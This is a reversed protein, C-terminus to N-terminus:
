KAPVSLVQFAAWTQVGADKGERSRLFDVQAVQLAEEPAKGAALERHLRDLLRIADNDVVDWATAVVAPVGRALFAAALGTVEASDRYSALGTSCAGLIVLRLRRLARPPLDAATLLSSGLDQDGGDGAALLLGGMDPVLNNTIGHGDFQLLEYREMASRVAAKTAGCGSLAEALPYRAAYVAAARQADPLRSLGPFLATSFAPDSVFLASRPPRWPATQRAAGLWAVLSPSYSLGHLEVLYPGGPALRLAAFPVSGILEDGVTLVHGGPPFERLRRPLIASALERCAQEGEAARGHALLQRCSEVRSRLEAEPLAHQEFEIRGGLFSWVLVRDPLRGYRIVLTERPLVAALTRAWREPPPLAAEGMHTRTEDALVRNSSRELVELASAPDRFRDLELRMLDLFLGRREALFRAREEMGAVELRQREVEAVACLLDDRAEEGEGRDLHVAARLKRLRLEELQDGLSHASGGFFAIGRDIAPLAAGGGGIGIVSQEVDIDVRLRHRSESDHPLDLWSRQAQALDAAAEPLRGREALLRARALFTFALLDGSGGQQDGLGAARMQESLFGLAAAFHGRMRMAEAAEEFITYLREPDSVARRGSLAALREHWGATTAGGRDYNKARLSRLYIVNAEEGLRRFLAIAAGYHRDAEVFRAQVMRVLGIMWEARGALAFLDQNTADNRLGTLVSEARAFDKDFYACIAQDLRVWGAFPSAGAALATEAHQLVAPICRSYIANGRVQHFDAHGSILLDLRGPDSAAARDIVAVAGALLRDGSAAQLQSGIARARALLSESEGLRRRQRRIAWEGLLWEGRRRLALRDGISPFAPLAAPGPDGLTESWGEPLQRSMTHATHWLTLSRLAIVANCLAERPPDSAAVVPDLLDLASALDEPRGDLRARLVLAAAVDIKREASSPQEALAAEFLRVARDRGAPSPETLLTWLATIRLISPASASRALREVAQGMALLRKRQARGPAFREPRPGPDEAGPVPGRDPQSAGMGGFCAPSALRARVVALLAADLRTVENAPM